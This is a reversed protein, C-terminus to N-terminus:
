VRHLNLTSLIFDAREKISSKPIEVIRYGYRPYDKILRDYEIVADEFTHRRELNQCFLEEWPPAMFITPDYRLEDVFHDYRHMKLMQFYSVGELFGRDLFVTQGVVNSAERALNYAIISREILLECFEIPKQWPTINSKAVLQEHVIQRGVESVTTYGRIKLEALLTSKGGSSCGSILILRNM